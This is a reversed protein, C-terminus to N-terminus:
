QLIIFSIIYFTFIDYNKESFFQRKSAGLRENCQGNEKMKLNSLPPFYTFSAQFRLYPLM